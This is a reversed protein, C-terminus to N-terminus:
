VEVGLLDGSKEEEKSQGISGGGSGAGRDICLYSLSWVSNDYM